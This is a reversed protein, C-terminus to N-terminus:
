EEGPSIRKWIAMSRQTATMTGYSAGSSSSTSTHHQQQQGASSSATTSDAATAPPGVAVPQGQKDVQVPFPM